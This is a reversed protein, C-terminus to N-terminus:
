KFWESKLIGKEILHDTGMGRVKRDFDLNKEAFGREYDDIKARLEPDYLGFFKAVALASQEAGYCPTEYVGSPTRMVSVLDVVGLGEVFKKPYLTLVPWVSVTGAIPGLANPGGALAGLMIHDYREEREGHQDKIFLYGENIRRLAEILDGSNKHASLNRVGYPIGFYDLGGVVKGEVDVVRLTKAAHELDSKSGILLEFRKDGMNIM